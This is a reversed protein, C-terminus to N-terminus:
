TSTMKKFYRFLDNQKLRKAKGEVEEWDSGSEEHQRKNGKSHKNSPKRSTNMQETEEGMALLQSVNVDEQAFSKSQFGRLKTKADELDQNFRQLGQLDVIKSSGQNIQAVIKSTKKKNSTIESPERCITENTFGNLEPELESGSEDSRVIGVNCDFEPLNQTMKSSQQINFFDSNLNIQDAPVLHEDGSSSSEDDDDNEEQMTPQTSTSVQSDSQSSNLKKSRFESRKLIDKLSTSAVNSGSSSSCAVPKYKSFLKRVGQSTNKPSKKTLGRKRTMKIPTESGSEQGTEIDSEADDDSMESETDMTENQVKNGKKDQTSEPLWEEESASFDGDSESSMWEEEEDSM